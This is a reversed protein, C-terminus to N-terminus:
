KGELLYDPDALITPIPIIDGLIMYKHDQNHGVQWCSHCSQVQIVTATGDFNNQLVALDCCGHNYNHSGDLYFKEQEIMNGGGKM